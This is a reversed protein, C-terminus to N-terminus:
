SLSKELAEIAETLELWREETRANEAAIHNLRRGVEAMDSPNLTGAVIQDELAKREQTLAEMRAEISKLEYRLPRTRNSLEQRAQASAKREDRSKGSTASPGPKTSPSTPAQTPTAGTAKSAGSAVRRQEELLWRQYDDLDGEFPQLTGRSVLWFEDCVERLLARDHSVLLVTGEFENLAVSLAERTNLDLHNTPEDLVLLNPRQWVIMALVLRAREGGSLTGVAQHM